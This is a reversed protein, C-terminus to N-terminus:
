NKPISLANFWRDELTIDEITVNKTQDLKLPSRIGSAIELNSLSSDIVQRLHIGDVQAIAATDVPQLTFGALHVQAITGSQKPQIQFASEAKALDFRVAVVTRGPGEGTVTLKGRNITVPQFLDLEGIPLRLEVSQHAVAGESLNDLLKQIAESDDKGDSPWIGYDLVEIARDANTSASQFRLQWGAMDWAPTLLGTLCSLFIGFAFLQSYVLFRSTGLKILRELGKGQASISQANRNIWKQEALNMQTWIKVLSGVWQSFLLLPLHILKLRSHRRWFIVILLILRNSVVWCVLLAATQWHGQAISLLLLGPTILSTWFSIRQDCLSWWTFRGTTAAGLRIARSNNRLMNGYWRRMNSYARNVVSGNLTEISNVTADPVYFMNYQHRLLWYWTSKDDGSLFQFRGWLWDILYDKELQAVFSPQLAVEARFLSFRGTLCMLKHSLSDSCMQIHRQAFRLHFWESFLNSGKVVPREDTTLAGMQPLLRFFPLCRRLTGPLLESDGDMLAIVTDAPLGLQSLHRLGDAMAKRKGEKQTMQILRIWQREPDEREIIKRISANEDDSSSNVLVTTSQTLTKAESVISKFVRESIWPREQYTPVLFCMHPLETVPVTDAQRRWRPFVSQLYYRARFLRLLVWSWRWIGIASLSILGLINQISLSGPDKLVYLGSLSGSLLVLYIVTSVRETISCQRLLPIAM